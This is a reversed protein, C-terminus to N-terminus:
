SAQTLLVIVFPHHAEISVTHEMSETKLWMRAICLFGGYTPWIMFLAATPNLPNWIPWFVMWNHDMKRSGWCCIHLEQDRKGKPHSCVLLVDTRKVGCTLGKQFCFKCWEIVFFLLFKGFITFTEYTIYQKEISYICYKTYKQVRRTRQEFKDIVQLWVWSTSWFLRENLISVFLM